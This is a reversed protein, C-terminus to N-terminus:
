KTENINSMEKARRQTIKSILNQAGSKLAKYAYYSVGVIDGVIAIAVLYPAMSALSPLSFAAAIAGVVGLLNTIVKAGNVGIDIKNEDLLKKFKDIELMLQKKQDESLSQIEKQLTELKQKITDQIEKRQKFKDIFKWTDLALTVGRIAGLLIKDVLESFSSYVGTVVNDKLQEAITKFVFAPNEEIFEQVSQASSIFFDQAYGVVDAIKSTLPNSVNKNVNVNKNVTTLNVKNTNEINSMHTM